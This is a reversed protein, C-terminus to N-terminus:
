LALLQKLGDVSPMSEVRIRLLRIGATALVTDKKLDREIGSARDHTSDDLEIALVTNLQSDCVVYDVSMRSIRNFSSLKEPGSPVGVLSYLVVQTFILHDPAAQMLLNFFTIESPSLLRKKFFKIASVDAVKGTAGKQVGLRSGVLKAFVLIFALVVLLVLLTIPIM